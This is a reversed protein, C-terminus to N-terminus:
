KVNSYQLANVRQSKFENRQNSQLLDGSFFVDLFILKKNKIAINRPSIEFRLSDTYNRMEEVAQALQNLVYKFEKHKKALEKFTYHWYDSASYYKDSNFGYTPISRLLRYLRYERETLSNKSPKIREFYDMKYVQYDLREIKPFRNGAEIYELSLAEKVPCCSFVIVKGMDNLFAKTFAGKGISKM